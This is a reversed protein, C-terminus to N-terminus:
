LTNCNGYSISKQEKIAAMMDQIGIHQLFFFFFGLPGASKTYHIYRYDTGFFSLVIVVKKSGVGRWSGNDREKIM